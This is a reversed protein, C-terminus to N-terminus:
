RWGGRRKTRLRHCCACVVDCKAIEALLVAESGGRASLRAIDAVKIEGPRHDFDMCVPDFTHGCDACPQTKIANVMARIRALRKRHNAKVLKYHAAKNRRYWDRQQARQALRAAETSLHKRPM